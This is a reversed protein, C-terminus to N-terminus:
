TWLGKPFNNFHVVFSLPLLLMLWWTNFQAWIAVERRCESSGSSRSFAILCSFLLYAVPLIFCLMLFHLMSVPVHLYFCCFLSVLIFVTKGANLFFVFCSCSLICESLCFAIMWGTDYKSSIASKTHSFLMLCNPKGRNKKINKWIFNFLFLIVFRFHM